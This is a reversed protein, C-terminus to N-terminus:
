FFPVMLQLVRVHGKSNRVSVWMRNRGRRISTQKPAAKIHHLLTYYEVYGEDIVVLLVVALYFQLTLIALAIMPVSVAWPILLEANGTRIAAVAMVATIGAAVLALLCIGVTGYITLIKMSRKCQISM